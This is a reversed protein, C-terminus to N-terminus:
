GLRYKIFFPMKKAKFIAGSKGTESNSFPVLALSESFDDPVEDDKIERYFDEPVPGFDLAQYDLNTVSRGTEKFHQFDLFYLLKFIKVKSQKQTNKCFFLIANLLKERYTNNLRM